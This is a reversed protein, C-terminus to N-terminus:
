QASAGSARLALVRAKEWVTSPLRRSFRSTARRTSAALNSSSGTARTSVPVGAVEWPNYLYWLWFQHWWLDAAEVARHYGVIPTDEPDTMDPPFNMRGNAPLKSLKVPQGDITALSEATEAPQPRWKETSDLVFVPSIM